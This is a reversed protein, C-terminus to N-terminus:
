AKEITNLQTFKIPLARKAGRIIQRLYDISKWCGQKTLWQTKTAEIHEM